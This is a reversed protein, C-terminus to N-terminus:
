VTMGKELEEVISVALANMDEERDPRTWRTLPHQHKFWTRQRKAYACTKRVLNELGQAPSSEGHLVQLAEPYGLSRLGPADEPCGRGLLARTEELMKPFIERARKEIRKKLLEKERWLGIFLPNPVPSQPDAFPSRRVASLSGTRTWFSSIPRGTMEHVELARILRQTNQPSIRRAAEPDAKELRRHLEKPGFLGIESALRQRIEENAGPLDDLGEFLAKLYLGTGGAVIPRKGRSRIQSILSSAQAAFRGASYRERPDLFDALHYPVGEVLYNEGSWRGEPKATGASLHKYIQRSDASIIEGGLRKALSLALETKGAATPGLIVIIESSIQEM